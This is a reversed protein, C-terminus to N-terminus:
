AKRDGSRQYSNGVDNIGIWISFLANESTWPASKPKKGAGQLFDNTQIILSRSAHGPAVLSKNITAGGVAYDYTLVLSSNLNM